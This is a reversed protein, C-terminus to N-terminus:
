QARTKPTRPSSDPTRMGGHTRMQMALAALRRILDERSARHADDPITNAAHLDDLRALRALLLDYHARLVKADSLPDHHDRLSMGAVGALVLLVTVMLFRSINEDNGAMGVINGGGEGGNGGGQGMGGDGQVDLGAFQPDGGQFSLEVSEGAKINHVTYSTMGHVSEARKFAPFTSSVHLTSDVAFVSMHPVAEPFLHTMTYSGSSYPVYYGLGIRTMGPRIPYDISYIDKKDTPIPIRKLPMEGTIVYCDTLSDMDAPLYLRFAGDKASITKPPSTDNSIEYMQEIHLQDGERTAALHPVVVSVGDWSKTAQYVEVDMTQDQGTVPIQINYTVGDFDTQLLFIPANNQLNPIEFTGDHTDASGVVAMGASPQIVTIKAEKIIEGTTGNKVTGRVTFAFASGAVTVLLATLFLVRTRGFLASM